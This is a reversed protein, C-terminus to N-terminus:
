KLMIVINNEGLSATLFSANITVEIELNALGAPDRESTSMPIPKQTYTLSSHLNLLFIYIFVMRFVIAGL